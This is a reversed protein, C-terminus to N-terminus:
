GEVTEAAPVQGRELQSARVTAALARLGRALADLEDDGLEGLWEGLIQRNGQRLEHLREEGPPTVTLRVRRRDDPDTTRDVDGRRVLSDILLSAASEGISLEGGVKCVSIGPNNEVAVLAKLQAMTLDLKLWTPVALQQVAGYVTRLDGTITAIREDDSELNTM